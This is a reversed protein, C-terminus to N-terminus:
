WIGPYRPSRGCHRWQEGDRHFKIRMFNGKRDPRWKLANNVRVIYVHGDDGKVEVMRSNRWNWRTVFGERIVPNDSENDDLHFHKRMKALGVSTLIVEREYRWDKPKVLNDKRFKTLCQRPLGWKKPLLREKVEGDELQVMGLNIPSWGAIGGM